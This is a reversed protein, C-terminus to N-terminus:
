RDRMQPRAPNALRNDNPLLQIIGFYELSAVGIALIAFVSFYWNNSSQKGILRPM